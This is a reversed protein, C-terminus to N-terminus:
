KVPLGTREWHIHNEDFNWSWFVRTVKGAVKQKSISGLIRSDISFNRNDGLVFFSNDSVTEPGFQASFPGEDGNGTAEDSADSYIYPEDLKEGNVFVNGDRIEVTDGPIAVIRRVLHGEKNPIEDEGFLSNIVRKFLEIDIVDSFRSRVNDGRYDLLVVDGHGPDSLKNIVLLDNKLITPAMSSSTVPFARVINGGILMDMLPNVTFLLFLFVGAYIVPRNFWKLRYEKPQKSACLWADVAIVVMGVFPVVLFVMSIRSDIYMFAIAALWSIVILVTYLVIGRALYGAYQQGLGPCISLLLAILPSRSSNKGAPRNDGYTGSATNASL